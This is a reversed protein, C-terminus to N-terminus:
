SVAASGALPPAFRFHCHRCVRASHLITEACDPCVKTSPLGSGAVQLPGALPEDSVRTVRPEIEPPTMRVVPALAPAPVPEDPIEVAEIPQLDPQAVARSPSTAHIHRAVRLGVAVVTLLLPLVIAVLYAGALM